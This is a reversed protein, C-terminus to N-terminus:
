KQGVKFTNSKYGKISVSKSGMIELRDLEGKRWADAESKLFCIPTQASHPISNLNKNIYSESVGWYEALQKKNLWRDNQLRDDVEAIAARVEERVILRVQDIFEKFIDM